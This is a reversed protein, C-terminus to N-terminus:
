AAREGPPPTALPPYGRLERRWEWWGWFVNFFLGVYLATAGWLEQSGYVAVSLLNVAGWVIWTELVKRNLLLQAVVSLGFILADLFALEADTWRDLAVSAAAAFALGGLSFVAVRGVPWSRIRPPAGHDGRLWYWWGHIQVSFFFVQLAASSYLRAESFVFFFLATGVLGFPFQWTSRKVALLVCAVVGLTAALEVYNM